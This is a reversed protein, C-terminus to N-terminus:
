YYLDEERLKTIAAALKEKATNRYKYVTNRHFGLQEAIEADPRGDEYHLRLIMRELSTLRGFAENCRGNVWNLGLEEEEEFLPEMYFWEERVEIAGDGAMDDEYSERRPHCTADYSFVISKLHNYVAYRFSNYLYGSFDVRKKQKKYQRAQKFFLMVLDQALDERGYDEISRNLMRAVRAGAAKGEADQYHRLLSQRKDTMYLQLFRRTDKDGLDYREETLLRLYKGLFRADASPGGYQILLDMAAGPEGAQYAFVLEDITTNM